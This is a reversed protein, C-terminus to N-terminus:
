TPYLPLNQLASCLQLQKIPHSSSNYTATLQLAAKGCLLSILNCNLQSYNERRQLLSKYISRKVQLHPQLNVSTLPLVLIHVRANVLYKVPTELYLGM